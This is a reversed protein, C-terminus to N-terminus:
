CGSLSVYRTTSPSFKGLYNMVGLIIDIRKKNNPPMETLMCPKKAEPQVRERSIVEGFFPIKTYRFYFKNENLKINEQHYIKMGQRLMRNHNIPDVDYGRNLIGDAIGFLNQLDKYIEDNKESSCIVQWCWEM